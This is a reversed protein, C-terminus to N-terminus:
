RHRHLRKRQLRTEEQFLGISFLECLSKGGFYEDLDLVDGEQKKEGGGSGTAEVPV